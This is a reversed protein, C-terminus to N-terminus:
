LLLRVGFLLSLSDQWLGGNSNDLNTFNLLATTSIYFGAQVKYEFGAGVPILYSTDRKSRGLANDNDAYVFGLGAQINPRFRSGPPVDFTYKLQGSLGIQTLDDTFALQALPGFSLNPSTYYDGSVAVEFAGGDISGIMPGADVGLTIRGTRREQVGGEQADAMSFGILMSVLALLLILWRRM